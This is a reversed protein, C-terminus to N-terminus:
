GARLEDGAVLEAFAAASSYAFSFGLEDRLRRSTVLWPHRVYGALGPPTALWPLRLSWWLRGLAAMAVYPLPVAPVGLARAIQRHTLSDDPAVNFAGRASAMLIALTARALDDRHVFQLPTDRGDPLGLFPVGLFYDTLFNRVGAAVVIAPRTVSVAVEPHTAAFGDVMEEVLGKHASYYYGQLPRLPATEDCAALRDPQAGYVTASSAVLVRTPRVRAAAELIRRTGDINASRLAAADRGPQVAFALHVLTDPAFRAIAAPLAPDAVDLSLVDDPPCADAARIDVGLVRAEPLRRRIEGLLARGYLGSSGTIAIRSPHDTM